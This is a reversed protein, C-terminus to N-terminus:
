SLDSILLDLRDLGAAVDDIPAKALEPVVAVEIFASAVGGQANRHTVWWVGPCSTENLSSEGEADLTIRVEGAGLRERLWALDAASLPMALLDITSAEGADVLLRVKEAIERLVVGANGTLAAHPGPASVAVVPIADLKM